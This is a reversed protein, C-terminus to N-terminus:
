ISHSTSLSPPDKPGAEAEVFVGKAGRVGIFRFSIVGGLYYYEKNGQHRYVLACYCFGTLWLPCSLCVPHVQLAAM